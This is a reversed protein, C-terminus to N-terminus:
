SHTVSVSEQGERRPDGVEGVALGRGGKNRAVLELVGCFQAVRRRNVAFFIDTQWVSDFLSFYEESAGM